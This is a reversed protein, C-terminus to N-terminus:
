ITELLEDLLTVHCWCVSLESLLMMWLTLCKLTCRPLEHITPHTIHPPLLGVAEFFVNFRREHSTNYSCRHNFMVWFTQLHVTLENCYKLHKVTDNCVLLCWTSDCIIIYWPGTTFNHLKPWVLCLSSRKYPTLRIGVLLANYM